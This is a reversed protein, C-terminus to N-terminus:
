LLEINQIKRSSLRSRLAEVNVDLYPRPETCLKERYGALDFGLNRLRPDERERGGARSNEFVEAYVGGNVPTWIPRIDEPLPGLIAEGHSFGCLYCEGVILYRPGGFPRLLLLKRSGLLVWVQDGQKAPQPALGILGEETSMFLRGACSYAIRRRLKAFEADEIPEQQITSSRLRLMERKATDYCPFQHGTPVDHNDRFVDNCLTRTYANLLTGGAAYREGFSRSEEQFLTSIVTAISKYNNIPAPLPLLQKLERLIAVAVGTVRLVGAGEMVEWPTRIMGSAMRLDLPLEPHHENSSWDPVWSPGTWAESLQCQGLIDLDLV